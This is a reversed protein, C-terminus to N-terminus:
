NKKRKPLPADDVTVNSRKKRQCNGRFPQMTVSGQLQLSMTNQLFTRVNPNTGRGCSMRQKGFFMELPDQSLHETLFFKVGPIETLSFKILEVVSKM